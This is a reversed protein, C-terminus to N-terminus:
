RKGLVNRGSENASKCIAATQKPGITDELTPQIKNGLIKTCVKSNYNLLSIPHWNTIDKRDGKKFLYSLVSQSMRRPMEGLQSIEIYLNCLNMKPM